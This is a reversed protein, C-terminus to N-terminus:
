RGGLWAGFVAGAIAGIPIGILAGDLGPDHCNCNQTFRSGIFGGAFMGALGLGIAYSAKRGASRVKPTSTASGPSSTQRAHETAFRIAEANAGVKLSKPQPTTDIQQAASLHPALTLILAVAAAKLTLKSNM